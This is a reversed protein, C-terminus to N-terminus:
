LLSFLFIFLLKKRCMGKWCFSFFYFAFIVSHDMGIIVASCIDEGKEERGSGVVLSRSKDSKVSEPLQLIESKSIHRLEFLPQLKLAM